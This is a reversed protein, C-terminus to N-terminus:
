AFLYSFVKYLMTICIFYLFIYYTFKELEQLSELKRILGLQYYYSEPQCDVVNETTLEKLSENNEVNVHEHKLELVKLIDRESDQFNDDLNKDIQPAVQNSEFFDLPTTQFNKPDLKEDVDFECVEDEFLGDFKNRLPIDFNENRFGNNRSKLISNPYYSKKGNKFKTKESCNSLDGYYATIAM